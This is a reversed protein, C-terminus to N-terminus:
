SNILTEPILNFFRPVRVLTTKERSYLENYYEILNINLIQRDLCALGSYQKQHSVITSGFWTNNKDWLIIEGLHQKPLSNLNQNYWWVGVINLNVRAIIAYKQMLANPFVLKCNLLFGSVLYPEPSIKEM